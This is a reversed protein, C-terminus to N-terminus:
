RRAGFANKAAAEADRVSAVRMEKKVVRSTYPAIRSRMFCPFTDAPAAQTQPIFHIFLALVAGGGTALPANFICM